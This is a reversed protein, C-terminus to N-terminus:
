HRRSLSRAQADGLVTVGLSLCCALPKRAAGGCGFESQIGTRLFSAEERRLALRCGSRSGPSSSSCWRYLPVTLPLGQQGTVRATDLFPRGAESSASKLGLKM